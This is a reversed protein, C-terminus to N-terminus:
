CFTAVGRQAEDRGHWEAGQEVCAGLVFSM